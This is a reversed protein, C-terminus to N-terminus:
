SRARTGLQRGTSDRCAYRRYVRGRNPSKSMIITGKVARTFLERRNRYM